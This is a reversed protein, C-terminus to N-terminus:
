RLRAMTHNDALDVLAALLATGIGRGTWDDHVGPAARLLLDPPSM